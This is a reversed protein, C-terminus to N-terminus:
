RNRVVRAPNGAVVSNPPVDKTVVSGAGIVAGSGITVGPLIVTRLGIWVDDEIVVPRPDVFGQDIMPIDTRSTDHGLAFIAVEPGMMVNAGISVPGHLRANIGISSRSGLRVRAGDGFFAGREVNIDEGAELFLPSCVRRRISRAIGGLPMPGEPLWRAVYLYFALRLMRAIRSTVTGAPQGVLFIQAPKAPLKDCVPRRSSPCTPLGRCIQHM